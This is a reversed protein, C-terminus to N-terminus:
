GCQFWLENAEGTDVLLRISDDGYVVEITAHNKTRLSGFGDIGLYTGNVLFAGTVKDPEMRVAFAEGSVSVPGVQRLPRQTPLASSEARHDTGSLNLGAYDRRGNAFVIEAALTHETSLSRITQVPYGQDAR